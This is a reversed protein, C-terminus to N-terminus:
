GDLTDDDKDSLENEQFGDVNEELTDGFNLFSLLPASSIKQSLYDSLSEEDIDLIEARYDLRSELSRALEQPWFQMSMQIIESGARKAAEVTKKSKAPLRDIIIFTRSTTEGYLEVNAFRSLKDKTIESNGRGIFGIDFRALKGARLRLTGDCERLNSNDSLWFVREIIPSSPNEIYQFGLIHLVSGLVLREFLKGYTSKDSGRITLTACGIATTLRIIDRWELNRYVKGSEDEILGLFMRISGFDEECKQSAEELAAEFDQIYKEQAAPNDRLVNQVGKGTLGILWNAPWILEKDSRRSSKLQSLAMDSLQDTFNEVGQWGKAFLAVMAGSAIAVRRSTLQETQTRINEGCLIDLTLQRVTEVGLKEIFDRGSGSLILKGKEPFLDDITTM